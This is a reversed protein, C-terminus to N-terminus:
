FNRINIPKICYIKIMRLLATHVAYKIVPVTPNEHSIVNYRMFSQRDGSILYHQFNFLRIHSGRFLVTSLMTTDSLLAYLCFVTLLEYKM